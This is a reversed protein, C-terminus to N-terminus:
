LERETGNTRKLFRAPNGGWIEDAPVDKTVVSGAAIVARDGITVGKLVTANAGIFVDDGIRVPATQIAARDNRRRAAADLPHFDTDWMFVNGGCTLHHGIRIERVCYISVGSFGCHDGVTLRAGDAVCVSCPKTLGVPNDAPRSTFTAHDGISVEAGPSILFLPLGKLRFNKGLKVHPNRLRFLALWTRCCFERVATKIGFM